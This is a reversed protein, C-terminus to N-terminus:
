HRESFPSMNKDLFKSVSKLMIRSEKYTLQELAQNYDLWKSAQIEDKDLFLNEEGLFGIFFVVEKEIRAGDKKFSYNQLYKFDNIIKCKDIGTEERLERLATEIESEGLNPHGKPFGWHGATQHVLLFSLDANKDIHIPIIGVSKDKM